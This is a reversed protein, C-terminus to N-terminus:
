VLLEIGIAGVVPLAYSRLHHVSATRAMDRSTM